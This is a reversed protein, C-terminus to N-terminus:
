ACRTRRGERCRTGGAQGCQRSEASTDSVALEAKEMAVKAADAAKRTAEKADEAAKKASDEAKHVSTKAGEAPKAAPTEAAWVNAGAMLASLILWEQLKM